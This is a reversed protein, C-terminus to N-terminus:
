LHHEGQPCLEGKQTDTLPMHVVYLTGTLPKQYVLYDGTCHPVWEPLAESADDNFYGREYRVSKEMRMLRTTGDPGIEYYMDMAVIETCVEGASCHQGTFVDQKEGNVVAAQPITPLDDDVQQGNSCGVIFLTLTSILRM